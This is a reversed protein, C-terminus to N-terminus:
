FISILSIYCAMINYRGAKQGSAPLAIDRAVLLCCINDYAVCVLTDISNKISMCIEIEYLQNVKGM